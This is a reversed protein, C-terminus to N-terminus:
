KVRSPSRTAEVACSPSIRTRRGTQLETVACLRDLRIELPAGRPTRFLGFEVGGRAEIMQLSARLRQSVGAAEIEIVLPTRRIAWVELQDHLACDIPTYAHMPSEPLPTSLSGEDPPDPKRTGELCRRM